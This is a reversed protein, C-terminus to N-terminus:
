VVAYCLNVYISQSRPSATPIFCPLFTRCCCALLLVGENYDSGPLVDLLVNVLLVAVLLVAVLLVTLPLVVLLVTLRLVCGGLEVLVIGEGEVSRDAGGGRGRRQNIAYPVAVRVGGPGGGMVHLKPPPATLSVAGLAGGMGELAALDWTVRGPPELPHQQPPGAAVTASLSSIGRLPGLVVRGRADAPTACVRVHIETHHVRCMHHPSQRNGHQAMNTPLPSLVHAYHLLCPGHCPTCITHQAM